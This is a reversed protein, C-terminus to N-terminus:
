PRAGPSRRGRRALRLPMLSLLSRRGLEDRDEADLARAYRAAEAPTDYQKSGGFGCERQCRWRMTAGDAEFRVRHGMLRCAVSM